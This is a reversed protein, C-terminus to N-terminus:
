EFFVFEVSQLQQLTLNWRTVIVATNSRKNGFKAEFREKFITSKYLLSSLRSSKAIPKSLALAEM